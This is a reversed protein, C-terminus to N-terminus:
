PKRMPASGDFRGPMIETKLVGKMVAESTFYGHVVLRKIDWYTRAPEDRRPLKEIAEIGAALDPAGRLQSELGPLGAVFTGRAADTYNEGVIVNVFAPVGVDTASPSDTKPLITDAISGIFTLQEPTLSNAPQFGSAVRSWAAMAEHPLLALATAAGLAKVLERRKMITM